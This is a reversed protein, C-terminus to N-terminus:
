ASEGSGTIRHITSILENKFHSEEILSDLDNVFFHGRYSESNAAISQIIKINPQAARLQKVKAQHVLLASGGIIVVVDPKLHKAYLLVEALKCMTIPHIAADESLLVGISRALWVNNCAVLISLPPKM